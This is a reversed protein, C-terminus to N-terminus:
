GAAAAPMLKLDVIQEQGCASLVIVCFEQEESLLYRIRDSLEKAGAPEPVIVDPLKLDARTKCTDLDLCAIFGDGSVYLAQLEQKKVFPVPAKHGTIIEELKAGTFLDIAVFHHKTAGHKGNSIAAVSVVKSPRGRVMLYSGKRIKHVDCPFDKSAEADTTEFTEFSQDFARDADMRGSHRRM